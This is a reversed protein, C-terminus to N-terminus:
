RRSAPAGASHLWAAILRANAEGLRDRWAPMVGARGERISTEIAALSGGYLWIRDTLNPAGLAPNGQGGPGHCAGCAGFLSKGIAAKVPDIAPGGLSLVYHAVRTVDEAALPLAPMAGRRGDLISRLVNDPDNGHLSDDDVLNPAGLPAMGTADTGHCAACNDDYLRKGARVMKPDAALQAISQQRAQQMLPAQRSGDSTLDAELEEGSSWDLLGRYNGLGPFLALYLAAVFFSGFSVALWWRPLNKVGERLVGHAWVHTTTGDEQTPIKVWPAWCLLFFSIGLTVVTLTIVWWSWFDSM